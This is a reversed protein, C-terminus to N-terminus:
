AAIAIVANQYARKVTGPYTVKIYGEHQNTAPVWDDVEFQFIRIEDGASFDESWSKNTHREIYFVQTGKVKLTEHIADGEPDAQGPNDKDFFRFAGMAGEWASAGLSETTSPECVAPDTIRASGTSAFRTDAQTTRCSAEIGGNADEVSISVVGTTPDVTITPPDVLLAIKRNEDAFTRPFTLVSM